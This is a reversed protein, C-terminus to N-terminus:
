FFYFNSFPLGSFDGSSSVASTSVLIFKIMYCLAFRGLTGRWGGILRM